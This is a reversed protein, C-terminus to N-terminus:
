VWTANRGARLVRARAEIAGFLPGVFSVAASRLPPLGEGGAKRAAALALAASFGGYATRGQHWDEPIALRFGSTLPEAGALLAPLSM